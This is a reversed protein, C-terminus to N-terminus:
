ARTPHYVNPTVPPLPQVDSREFLYIFEAIDEGLERILEARESELQRSSRWVFMLHDNLHDAYHSLSHDARGGGRRRAYEELLLSHERQRLMRYTPSSVPRSLLVFIERTPCIVEEMPQRSQPLSKCTQQRSGPSRAAFQRHGNLLLCPATAFYLQSLPRAPLM